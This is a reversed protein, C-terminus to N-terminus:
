LLILVPRLNFGQNTVVADRIRSGPPKVAKQRNQSVQDLPQRTPHMLALMTRCTECIARGLHVQM